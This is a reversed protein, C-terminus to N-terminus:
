KCEAGKTVSAYRFTATQAVRPVAVVDVPQVTIPPCNCSMPPRVDNVFVEFSREHLQVRDITISRCADGTVGRAVFILVQSSFDVVPEPLQPSRRSNIQQWVAHWRAQSSIVEESKSLVGSNSEQHIQVMPLTGSPETPLRGCSILLIFTLRGFFRLFSAM